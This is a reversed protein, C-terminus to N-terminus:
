FSFEINAGAAVMADRRQENSESVMGVIPKSTLLTSTIGDDVRNCVNTTHMLWSDHLDVM